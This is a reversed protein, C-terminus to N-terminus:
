CLAEAMDILQAFSLYLAFGAFLGGLSMLEDLAQARNGGLGAGCAFLLLTYTRCLGHFRGM